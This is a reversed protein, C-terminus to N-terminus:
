ISVSRSTCKGCLVRTTDKGVEEWNDCRGVTPGWEPYKSHEPESNQCIMFRRGNKEKTKWRSHM